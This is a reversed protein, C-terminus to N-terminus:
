TRCTVGYTFRIMTSKWSRSVYICNEVLVLLRYTTASALIFVAQRIEKSELM